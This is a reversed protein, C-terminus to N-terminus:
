AYHLTPKWRVPMVEPYAIERAGCFAALEEIAARIAEATAHDGPADPEAYIANIVLRQRARDMAPDIRGILRDGHLIPLVYYGYERKERPVYIEIRYRFDWLLETRARDCILTHIYWPGPWNRGDEQLQVKVISGEVELEKLVGPLGTYRGRIFHQQIHAPRAVGLARLSTQAARHVIEHESLEERPTWTPLCRDSLDWLKQGGARGAVMLEGKSWLWDLMRSVNRGSTWGSSHWHEAARDEFFRSPLAGRERIEHLIYDRLPDNAEITARLRRSYDDDGTGYRRMRLHHIPYDETLVISACHAWYEFLSREQWLLADLHAPNFSSVRSRLVLLHSRAVVGIPDLQVCGLARVVQLVNEPSSVVPAYSLRQKVIALRRATTTSIARINQKAEAV